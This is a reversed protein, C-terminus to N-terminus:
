YIMDPIYEEPGQVRPELPGILVYAEEHDCDCYYYQNGLLTVKDYVDWSQVSIISFNM